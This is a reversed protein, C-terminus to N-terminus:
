QCVLSCSTTAVEEVSASSMAMVERVFSIMQVVRRREAVRLGGSWNVNIVGLGDLNNITFPSTLSCLMKINIIHKDSVM